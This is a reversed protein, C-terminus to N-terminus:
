PTAKPNVAASAARACPEAAPTTVHDSKAPALALTYNGFPHEGCATLGLWAAILLLHRPNLHPQAAHLAHM